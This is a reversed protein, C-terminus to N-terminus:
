RSARCSAAGHKEFALPGDLLEDPALLAVEARLRDRDQVASRSVVPTIRTRLSTVWSRCCSSILRPTMRVTDCWNFVGRVDTRM